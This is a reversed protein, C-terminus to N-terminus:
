ERLKQRKKTGGEDGNERGVDGAMKGGCNEGIEWSLLRNARIGAEEVEEGVEGDCECEHGKFLGVGKPTKTFGTGCGKCKFLDTKKDM